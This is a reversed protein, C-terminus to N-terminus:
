ESDVKLKKMANRAAVTMYVPRGDTRETRPARIRKMQAATERQQAEAYTIGKRAAANNFAELRTNKKHRVTSMGKENRKRNRNPLEAM